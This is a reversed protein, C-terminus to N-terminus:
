RSGFSPLAMGFFVLVPIMYIFFLILYRLGLYLYVEAMERYSAPRTTEKQFVRFYKDDIECHNESENLIKQYNESIEETSRTPQNQLTLANYLSQIDLYNQRMAFARGKFDRNTVLLSLVLLVVSLIASIVDTDEGLCNPYRIVIVSLIASVLVYWVLLLQSHFDNNSLREQARIRAKFTFWLKNALAKENESLMMEGSPMLHYTLLLINRIPIFVTKVRDIFSKRRQENSV